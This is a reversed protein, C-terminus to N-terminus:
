SLHGGRIPRLTAGRRGGCADSPCEDVAVEAGIGAVPIDDDRLWPMAEAIAPKLSDHQRSLLVFLESMDSARQSFKDAEQNTERVLRNCYMRAVRFGYEYMGLLITMTMSM